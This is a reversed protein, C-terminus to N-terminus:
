RAVLERVTACLEDIARDATAHRGVFGLFGHFADPYDLAVTTVGAGALRRAYERGEDRLPDLEATVVVAPPLGSLDPALGPAALPLSADDPTTYQSWFWRLHDRTVYYGIANEEYSPTACRSDLVPYLLLQALLPELGQDRRALCLAAALNGGASDGAVLVEGTAGFADDLARSVVLLADDLAAPFPNEPALRYDVSVLTAGIGECLHRALPDHSDLGGLVWGGGHLFVITADTRRTTPAYVRVPLASADARRVVDEGVSGVSVPAESRPPLAAFLARAEAADLVETGLRPFAPNLLALLDATQTKM